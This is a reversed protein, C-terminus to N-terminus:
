VLLDVTERTWGTLILGLIWVWGLFFPRRDVIIGLCLGPGKWAMFSHNGLGGATTGKGGSLM